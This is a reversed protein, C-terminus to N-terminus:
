TEVSWGAKELIQRYKGFQESFGSYGRMLIRAPPREQCELSTVLDGLMDELIQSSFKNFSVDVYRLSFINFAGKTYGDLNNTECDFVQLATGVLTPVVGSLANRSCRFENLISCARLEPLMGTLNNSSCDFITLTENMELEPIKGSLVNHSCLFESLQLCGRLEPLEGTLRNHSCNFKTLNILDSLSPIEGTLQNYHCHFVALKQLGRLSPIEGNLLNNHCEFWVLEKSKELSPIQGTLRNNYCLFFRLSPVETLEPISDEIENYHLYVTELKPLQSLSPIPGRLKNREGEFLILDKCYSLEPIRGTLNNQEFNFYQLATNSKLEPLAGSLNNRACSFRRLKKNIELAPLEGSLENGSCDFIELDPNSNLSPISGTLRNYLCHFERLKTKLSLDPITGELERLGEVILIDDTFGQFLSNFTHTEEISIFPEPLVREATLPSSFSELEFKPFSRSFVDLYFLDGSGYVPHIGDHTFIRRQQSKLAPGFENKLDQYHQQDYIIRGAKFQEAIEKAMSLSPLGYYDAVREIATIDPTCKRHRTAHELVDRNVVHVFLIDITKDKKWTNRVMKEIAKYASEAGNAGNIGYEILLLDFEHVLVDENWKFSALVMNEGGRAAHIHEMEVEPYEKQLWTFSRERWGRQVTVSGGVYCVKVKQGSRVKKFFHPLGYRVRLEFLDSLHPNRTQLLAELLSNADQHKPRFLLEQQLAAIAHEIMNLKALVIGLLYNLEPTQPNLQQAQALFQLAVESQNSQIAITAQNLLNQVPELTM